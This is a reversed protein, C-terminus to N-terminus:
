DHILKVQTPTLIRQIQAMEGDLSENKSCLSTRLASVLELTDHLDADMAQLYLHSYIVDTHAVVFYGILALCLDKHFSIQACHKDQMILTCLHVSLSGAYTHECTHERTCNQAPTQVILTIHSQM